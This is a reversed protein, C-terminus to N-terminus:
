CHCHANYPGAGSMHQSCRLHRSQQLSVLTGGPVALVEMSQLESNSGLGSVPVLEPRIYPQLHRSSDEM